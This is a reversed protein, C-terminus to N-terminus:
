SVVYLIMLFGEGFSSVSNKSLKNLFAVDLKDTVFGVFGLQYVKDPTRDIFCEDNQNELYVGNPM